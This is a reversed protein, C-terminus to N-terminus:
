INELIEHPNEVVADPDFRDLMERTHFGYAVAILRQVKAARAALMDVEMDGVFATEGPDAGLKKMATILQAPDPKLKKIDRGGVVVDIYEDIKFKRLFDRIIFGYTNSCIGTKYGQRKAKELMEAAGNFMTINSGFERFFRRYIEGIREFDKRGFGLKTYFNIYNGDLNKTFDSVSGYFEAGLENCLAEYIRFLTEKSDAIVGDFDFIIAEIAM